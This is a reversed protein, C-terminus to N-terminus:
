VVQSLSNNGTEPAIGRCMMSGTFQDDNALRLDVFQGFSSNARPVAALRPEGFLKAAGSGGNVLLFTRLGSRGVLGESWAKQGLRRVWGESGAKQAWGESGAKQGLRRVWGESGAKQGLRRVWGESGAKQISEAVGRTQHPM